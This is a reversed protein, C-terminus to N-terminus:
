ARQLLFRCRPPCSRLSLFFLALILKKVLLMAQPLIRVARYCAVHALTSEWTVEGGVPDGEGPAAGGGGPRAGGAPHRLEEAGSRFVTWMMCLLETVQSPLTCSAASSVKRLSMWTSSTLFLVGRLRLQVEDIIQTAFGRGCSTAARTFTRLKM